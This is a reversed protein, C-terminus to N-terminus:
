MKGTERYTNYGAWRNLPEGTTIYNCYVDVIGSSRARIQSGCVSSIKVNLNTLNIDSRTKVLVGSATYNMNPDIGSPYVEIIEVNNYNTDWLGSGNAMQGHGVTQVSLITSSMGEVQTYLLNGSVWNNGDISTKATFM